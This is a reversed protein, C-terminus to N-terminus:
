WVEVGFKIQSISQPCVSKVSM